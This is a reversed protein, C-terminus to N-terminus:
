SLLEPTIQMTSALEVSGSVKGMRAGIRLGRHTDTIPLSLMHPTCVRPEPSHLQLLNGPLYTSLSRGGLVPSLHHTSKSSLVSTM